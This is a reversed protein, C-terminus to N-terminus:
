APDSADKGESKFILLYILLAVGIDIMMDAINFVPWVRFDIFDVVYHRVIRDFINGLSGGIVLGLATKMIPSSSTKYYFYMILVILAIGTYVLFSQKGYLIGFAAGQNQVYTLHIFNGILPISQNPTFFRVVLFKTLQDTIFVMIATLYFM